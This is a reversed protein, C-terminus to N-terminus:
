VGWVAALMQLCVPNSEVWVCFRAVQEATLTARLRDIHEHQAALHRRAMQSLNALRARIANLRSELDQQAVFFANLHDQMPMTANPKPAWLRSSGVALAWEIFRDQSTPQLCAAARGIFFDTSNQRNRSKQVFQELTRCLEDTPVPAQELLSTMKAKLQQQEQAHAAQLVDPQHVAQLEALRATLRAVEAELRMIYEKKRQRSLRAAQAKKALRSDHESMSSLAVPATQIRRLPFQQQQESHSAPPAQQVVSTDDRAAPPMTFSPAFTRPAVERALVVPATTPLPAAAAAMFMSSLDTPCTQVRRMSNSLESAGYPDHTPAPAVVRPTVAQEHLFDNQALLLDIRQRGFQEDMELTMDTMRANDFGGAGGHAM